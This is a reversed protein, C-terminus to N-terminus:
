LKSLLGGLLTKYHPKIGMGFDGYPKGFVINQVCRETKIKSADCGSDHNSSMYALRDNINHFRYEEM